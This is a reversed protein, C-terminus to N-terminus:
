AKKEDGRKEPRNFWYRFEEWCRRCLYQNKGEVKVFQHTAIPETKGCRACEQQEM